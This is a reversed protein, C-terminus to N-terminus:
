SGVTNFFTFVAPPHRIGREMNGAGTGIITGPDQYAYLVRFREIM